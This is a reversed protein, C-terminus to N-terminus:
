YTKSPIMTQGTSRYNNSPIMTQGTSRYYNKAQKCDGARFFFYYIMYFFGFIYALIAYLIRMPLSVGQATNCSWSLYAAGIGIMFSIVSSIISGVTRKKKKEEKESYRSAITTLALLDM